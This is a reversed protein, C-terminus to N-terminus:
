PTQMFCVWLVASISNITKAGAPRKGAQEAFPPAELPPMAYEM